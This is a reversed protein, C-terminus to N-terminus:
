IIIYLTNGDPSSPLASVQEINYVTASWPARKGSNGNVYQYLYGTLGMNGTNGIVM